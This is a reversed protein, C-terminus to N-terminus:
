QNLSQIMNHVSQLKSIHKIFYEGVRRAIKTDAM